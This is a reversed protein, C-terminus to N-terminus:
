PILIPLSYSCLTRPHTSLILMAHSSSYLTHAYPTPHTSLILTPYSSSYLTRAYRKERGQPSGDFDHVTRAKLVVNELDKVAFGFRWIFTDDTSSAVRAANGQVNRTDPPTCQEISRGAQLQQAMHMQVRCRSITKYVSLLFDEAKHIDILLEAQTSYGALAALPALFSLWYIEVYCRVDDALEDWPFRLPELWTYQDPFKERLKLLETIMKGDMAAIVWQREGTDVGVERRWADFLSKCSEEDIRTTQTEFLQWYIPDFELPESSAGRM